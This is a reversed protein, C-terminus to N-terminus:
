AKAQGGSTFLTAKDIEINNDRIIHVLVRYDGCRLRLGNLPPKLKKVGGTRHNLYRDIRTLIQM